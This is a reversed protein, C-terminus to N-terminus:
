LHHTIKIKANSICIKRTRIDKGSMMGVGKPSLLMLRKESASFLHHKGGTIITDSEFFGQSQKEPM